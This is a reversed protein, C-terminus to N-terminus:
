ACIVRNRGNQKADYLAKDARKLIQEPQEDQAAISTQGISLTINLEPGDSVSLPQEGINLRIREALAQGAIQSTHPLLVVFEDGGLRGTIDGARMLQNFRETIALLVKDGIDHGHNDNIDKFNDVDIMLVSFVIGHRKAQSFERNLVENFYRRNYLGTLPDTNAQMSLYKNESITKELSHVLDSTNLLTGCPQWFRGAM